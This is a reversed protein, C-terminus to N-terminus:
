RGIPAAVTAPRTPAPARAPDPGRAISSSLRAWTRPAYLWLAIGGLLPLSWALYAASQADASVRGPLEQFSVWVLATSALTLLPPRRRSLVEWVLLASLFGLSYYINNWPDLVCRMLLLLTLLGLPESSRSGRRRLWLLTLPLALGLILPHTIASLWGPATRYGPKIQGDLGRVVQGHAGLWWWAQWPQFIAGTQTAIAGGGVATHSHSLYLPAQVLAVVAVAITLARWRRSPLACLVPLVALLTWAKTAIAVGLLLGAWGARGSRAILIASVCLVAALIEEAHGLELARMMVPSAVCLGLATVRALPGHGMARMRAALWLALAGAALLCPLAIMRYVALDGGHWLGPLLAFPARLVLSGGYAPALSLFRAVHGETLARVAPAAENDYDNWAFGYLSLWSLVALGAAIAAATPANARLLKSV